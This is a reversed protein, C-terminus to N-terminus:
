TYTNPLLDQGIYRLPTTICNPMWSLHMPIHLSGVRLQTELCSWVPLLLLPFGRLSRSSNCFFLTRLTHKQGHELHPNKNEPQQELHITKVHELHLTQFKPFFIHELHNDAVIYKNLLRSIQDYRGALRFLMSRAAWSHLVALHRPRSDPTKPWSM